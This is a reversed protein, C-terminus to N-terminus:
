FPDFIPRTCRTCLGLGAWAGLGRAWRGPRAGATDTGRARSATAAQGARGRAGLARAQVARAGRAQRRRAKREGARRGSLRCRARCARRSRGAGGAREGAGWRGQARKSGLGVGRDKAM